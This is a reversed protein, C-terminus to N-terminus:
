TRCQETGLDSWEEAPHGRAVVPVGTQLLDSLSALEDEVAAVAAEGEAVRTEAVVEVVIM